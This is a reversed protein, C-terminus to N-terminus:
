NPHLAPSSDCHLSEAAPAESTRGPLPRANEVPLTPLRVYFTSGKGPGPSEAWVKGRHLEVLNRVLALGIGLGNVVREYGPHGQSFMEFLCPLTAGDIGVGSDSVSVLASGPELQVSIRIHGGPPTFKAANSLLNGFVQTLRVPDGDLAIPEEPWQIELRHGAQDLRQRSLEIAQRLMADLEIRERRLEIKGSTIRAVDMLDDVLRVLQGVQREIVQHAFLEPGSAPRILHLGNQIPALPNRLEHALTALFEDKRRDAQRLAEKAELADEMVNLAALRADQAERNAQRLESVMRGLEANTAALGDDPGTL